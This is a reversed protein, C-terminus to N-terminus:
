GKLWLVAAKPGRDRRPHLVPANAAGLTIAGLAQLPGVSGEARRDYPLLPLSLSSTKSFGGRFGVKVSPTHMKTFGLEKM